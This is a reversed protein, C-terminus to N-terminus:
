RPTAIAISPGRLDFVVYFAKLFVDGLVQMKSGQNSQVGGFCVIM